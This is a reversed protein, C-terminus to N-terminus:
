GEEVRGRRRGYKHLSFCVPLCDGRGERGSDETQIRGLGSVADRVDPPVTTRSLFYSHGLHSDQAKGHGVLM